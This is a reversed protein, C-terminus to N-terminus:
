GESERGEERHKHAEAASQSKRGEAAELCGAGDSECGRTQAVGTRERVGESPGFSSTIQRASTERQRTFSSTAM